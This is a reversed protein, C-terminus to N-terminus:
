ALLPVDGSEIVHEGARALLSASVMCAAVDATRIARYQTPILPELRRALWLGVTEGPRWDARKGANLLSPRVLTLSSFGLRRLDSETEGKVQLYFSRSHTSAGLSSNLVFTPTGAQLALQAAGLVFDHDVKRFASRSGAQRMTTGLTCIVADARWWDADGPLSEYDIQPNTLKDQPALPQRTPAVIREM